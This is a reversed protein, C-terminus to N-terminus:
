SIPFRGMQVTSPIFNCKALVRNGVVLLGELVLKVASISACQQAEGLMIWLRNGVVLDGIHRCPDIYM